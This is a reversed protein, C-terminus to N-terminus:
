SRGKRHSEYVSLARERAEGHDVMPDVPAHVAKGSRRRREPVWRRIYDGDPDHREGQTTPNFIRFFPQADAGSGAAWQWGLTNNALDADILTDWFWAAGDQWSILLDKTLFSAVVMRVRNHMWGTEWLQRMGADVLAYGTRGRSWRALGEPDEKWPFGQWSPNLPAQTTEPFHYLLHYGFERWGIERLYADASKGPPLERTRVWIQRPSIAGVALWPSMRSTGDVSPVERGEAYADIPGDLFADLRELGATAGPSWHNRLKDVWPHDPVLDLAHIATRVAEAESPDTEPRTSPRSPAGTVGPTPVQEQFSRWFPTFVRYPDGKGTRIADPDHLLDGQFVRHDVGARGLVRALESGTERAQPTIPENWFVADVGGNQLRDTLVQQPSRDTVTFRIGLGSLGDAVDLLHEHLWWRAAAGPMWTGYVAESWCWIVELEGAERSAHALAPHDALRLDRHMWVIAKMPDMDQEQFPRHLDNVKVPIRHDPSFDGMSRIPIFGRPIGFSGQGRIISLVEFAEEPM